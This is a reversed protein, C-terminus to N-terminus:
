LMSILDHSEATSMAPRALAIVQRAGDYDQGDIRSGISRKLTEIGMRAIDDSGPFMERLKSAIQMVALADGSAEISRTWEQAVYTANNRLSRSGPFRNLAEAYAAAAEPWDGATM